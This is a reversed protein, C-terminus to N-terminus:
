CSRKMACGSLFRGMVILPLLSSFPPFLSCVCLLFHSNRSGGEPYLDAQAVCMHCLELVFAGKGLVSRESTLAQSGPRERLGLDGCDMYGQSPQWSVVKFERACRETDHFCAPAQASHFCGKRGCWCQLWGVGAPEGRAKGMRRGYSQIMQEWNVCGTGVGCLMCFSGKRRRVNAPFLHFSFLPWALHTGQRVYSGKEESGPVTQPTEKKERDRGRCQNRFGQKEKVTLGCSGYHM